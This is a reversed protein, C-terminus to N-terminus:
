DEMLSLIYATKEAMLAQDARSEVNLRIVPETNSTRLNFRWQGFDMSLGDTYDINDASARFHDEIRAWPPQRM